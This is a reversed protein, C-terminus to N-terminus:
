HCDTSAVSAGCLLGEARRPKRKACDSLSPVSTVRFTRQNLGGAAPEASFTSCGLAIEIGKRVEHPLM